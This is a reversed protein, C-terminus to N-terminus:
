EISGRIERWARKGYLSEYMQRKTRMRLSEFQHNDPKLTPIYRAGRDETGDMPDWEKKTDLIVESELEFHKGPRTPHQIKEMYGVFRRKGDIAIEM